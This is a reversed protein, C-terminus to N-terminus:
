FCRILKFLFSLNFEQLRGFRIKRYNRPLSHCLTQYLITRHLKAELVIMLVLIRLKGAEYVEGGDLTVLDAENSKIKKICDEPISANVCEVNVVLSMNVATKNVYKIFEGCKRMEKQM